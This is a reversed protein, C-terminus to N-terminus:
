SPREAPAAGRHKLDELEEDLEEKAGRPGHERELETWRSRAALAGARVLQWLAAVMTVALATVWLTQPYRLPTAWPTQATANFLVSESRAISAMWVLMAMSAALAVAAAINLVNRLVLPLVAHLLDIRIHARSVLAVAIALAAGSALIYGGLEDVGQLSRNFVKRMLTEVTVAFALVLFAGGFLTAAAAEFRKM